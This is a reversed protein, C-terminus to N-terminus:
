IRQTEPVIYAYAFSFEAPSLRRRVRRGLASGLRSSAPSDVSARVGRAFQMCLSYVCFARGINAWRGHRAGSVRIWILGLPPVYQVRELPSSLSGRAPSSVSHNGEEDGKGDGGHREPPGGDLDQGGRGEEEEGRSHDRDDVVHVVEPLVVQRGARLPADAPRTLRGDGAARLM